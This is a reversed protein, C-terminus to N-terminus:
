QPYPWCRELETRGAWPPPAAPRGVRKRDRPVSRGDKPPLSMSVAAYKKWYRERGVPRVCEKGVLAELAHRVALDSMGLAAAIDQKKMPGRKQLLDFVSMQKTM